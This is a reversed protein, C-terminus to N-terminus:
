TCGQERLQPHGHQQGVLHQHYHCSHVEILLIELTLIVPPPTQQQNCTLEFLPNM